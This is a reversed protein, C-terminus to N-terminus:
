DLREFSQLALTVHNNNSRQKMIEAKNQDPVFAEDFITRTALQISCAELLNILLEERKPIGGLKSRKDEIYKIFVLNTISKKKKWNLFKLYKQKICKQLRHTKLQLQNSKLRSVPPNTQTPVGNKKNNSCTRSCKFLALYINLSLLSVVMFDYAVSYYLYLSIYIYIPWQRHKQTGKSSM